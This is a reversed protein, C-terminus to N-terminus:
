CRYNPNIRITRNDESSWRSWAFQGPDPRGSYGTKDRLNLHLLASRTHEIDKHGDLVKLRLTNLLLHHLCTHLSWKYRHISVFVHVRDIWLVDPVPVFYRVM